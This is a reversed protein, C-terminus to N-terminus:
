VADDDVELGVNELSMGVVDLATRVREVLLVVIEDLPSHDLDLDGHIVGLLSESQFSRLTVPNIELRLPVRDRGFNPTVREESGPMSQLGEALQNGVILLSVRNLNYGSSGDNVPGEKGVATEHQVSGPVKDGDLGHLLQNVPHRVIFEVREVPM